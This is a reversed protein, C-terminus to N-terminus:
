RSHFLVNEIKYRRLSARCHETIGLNEVTRATLLRVLYIPGRLLFVFKTRGAVIYNIRDNGDEYISIVGMLMGMFASLLSEDGYRSFIPKGSYTLIWVHKPQQYWEETQAEVEHTGPLLQNQASAAAM